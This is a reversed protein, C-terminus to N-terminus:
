VVSKRDGSFVKSIFGNVEDFSYPPYENTFSAMIHTIFHVDNSLDLASPDNKGVTLQDKCYSASFEDIFKEYNDPQQPTFFDDYSVADKGCFLTIPAGIGNEPEIKVLYIGNGQKLAGNDDTKTIDMSLAYFSAYRCM